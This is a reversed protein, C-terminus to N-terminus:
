RGRQGRRAGRDRTPRPARAAGAGLRKRGDRHLPRAPAGPPGQPEAPARHLGMHVRGSIGRGQRGPGAGPERRGARDGGRRTRRARELPVYKVAALIQVGGPDRGTSAIEDRVRDLNARVTEARLGTIQEVVGVGGPTRHDRRRPSALVAAVPRACITCLGVDHVVEVGARECSSAHSRRSTSTAVAASTWTRLRRVGRPGGRRGRLLVSRGGARDRGCAPGRRRAGAGRAVGEALIGGALGRWGAHLM